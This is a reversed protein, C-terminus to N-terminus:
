GFGPKLYSSGGDASGGGWAVAIPVLLLPVLRVDGSFSTFAGFGRRGCRAPAPPACHSYVGSCARSDSTVPPSPSATPSIGLRGRLRDASGFWAADALSGDRGAFRAADERWRSAGSRSVLGGAVGARGLASFRRIRPSSAFAGGRCAFAVRPRRRRLRLSVWGWGLGASDRRPRCLVLIGGVGRRAIAPPRTHPPALGVFGGIARIPAPFGGLSSAPALPPLFRRSPFAYIPVPLPFPLPASVEARPIWPPSNSPAGSVALSASPPSREREERESV